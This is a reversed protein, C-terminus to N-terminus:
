VTISNFLVNYQSFRSSKQLYPINVIQLTQRLIKKQCHSKHYSRRFVTSNCRWFGKCHILVVSATMLPTRELFTNKSIECFECAFVQVLAEKKIFNCTDAVKNFFFSQCPHKGTFKAFNKLVGIKCFVEPPQKQLLFYFM